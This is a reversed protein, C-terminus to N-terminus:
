FPFWKSLNFFYLVFVFLFFYLLVLLCGDGIDICLMMFTPYRLNVVGVIILALNFLSVCLYM